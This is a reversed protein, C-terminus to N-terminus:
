DNNLDRLYRELVKARQSYKIRRLAREKIQRVRERMLDYKVWIEDLSMPNIWDLWFYLKLIDKERKIPYNDLEKKIHSLIDQKELDNENSTDLLTDKLTIEFNDEDQADYEDNIMFVRNSESTESDIWLQRESIPTDLHVMPETLQPKYYQWYNESYEARNNINYNKIFNRLEDDTPDRWNENYFKEIFLRTLKSPWSPRGSVYSCYHNVFSYISSVISRKLYNFFAWWGKCDYKDVANILGINWVQIFDYFDIGKLNYNEKYWLYKQKVIKYVYRLNANIIKDRIKKRELSNKGLKKYKAFLDSIEKESLVPHKWIHM